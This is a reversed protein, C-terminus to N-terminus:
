ASICFPGTFVCRFGLTVVAMFAFAFAFAFAIFVALALTLTAFFGVAGAPLVAIFAAFRAVTSRRIHSYEKGAMSDNVGILVNEEKDNATDNRLGGPHIITYELGSSRLYHEAKRKWISVNGMQSNIFHEPNQGQM